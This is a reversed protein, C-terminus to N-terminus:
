ARPSRPRLSPSLQYHFKETASLYDNKVAGFTVLKAMGDALETKIALTAVRAAGYANQTRRTIALMMPRRLIM